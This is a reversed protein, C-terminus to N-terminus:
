GGGNIELLVRRTMLGTFPLLGVPRTPLSM